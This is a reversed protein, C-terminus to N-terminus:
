RIDDPSGALGAAIDALFEASYQPQYRSNTITTGNHAQQKNIIEQAQIRLWNNFHRRFDSRSKYSVGDLNLKDVFWGVYEELQEPAIGYLRMASEATSGGDRIEKKLEEALNEVEGIVGGMALEEERARANSSSSINNKSEKSEKYEIYEKTTTTQQDNTPRKNTAVQDNTPRETPRYDNQTSQYVDYNCITIVSFKSTTRITVNQTKELHELATRAERETLRAGDALQKRGTILSGKPIIEGRWKKDEYNATVLLYIFMIVTNKDGWWEWEPLSRFLKVWGTNM